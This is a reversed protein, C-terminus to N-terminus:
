RITTIYITCNVRTDLNCELVYGTEADDPVTTIDLQGNEEDSM